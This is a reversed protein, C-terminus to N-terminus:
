AQEVEGAEGAPGAPAPPPGKWYNGREVGTCTFTKGGTTNALPARLAGCKPCRMVRLWVNFGHRFRKTPKSKVPVRNVYEMVTPEHKEAM